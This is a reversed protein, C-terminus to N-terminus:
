FTIESRLPDSKRKLQKISSSKNNLKEEILNIEEWQSYQYVKANKSQQGIRQHVMRTELPHNSSRCRPRYFFFLVFSMQIVSWGTSSCPKKLDAVQLLKEDVGSGKWILGQARHEQLHRLSDIRIRLSWLYSHYLPLMNEYWKVIIYICAVRCTCIVLLFSQMFLLWWWMRFMFSKDLFEGLGKRIKKLILFKWSVM